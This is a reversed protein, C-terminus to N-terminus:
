KKKEKIKNNKKDRDTHGKEDVEIALKQKPFHLDIQYSVVFHQPLIKENSFTKIIRITVSEERSMTIGHFRFRFKCRFDDIKKVGEKKM